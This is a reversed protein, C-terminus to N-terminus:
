SEVNTNAAPENIKKQKSQRPNTLLLFASLATLPLVISWYPFEVGVRMARMLDNEGVFYSFGFTKSPKGYDIDPLKQGVWSRGLSFYFSNDAGDAAWFIGANMRGFQSRFNYGYGSSMFRIQDSVAHSRVWAGMALCAMVLTVLGIKRRWPKFFDGM